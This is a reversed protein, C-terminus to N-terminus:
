GGLLELRNLEQSLEGPTVSSAGLRGVVIGAAANSVKMCSEINAGQLHMLAMVSIVTDGAGTVDYVERAFTPIRLLANSGRQLAVMGWEGCTIVSYDSHVTDLIQKALIRLAENDNGLEKSARHTAGCLCQAEMMNPTLLTAGEYWPLPTKRSPDVYVAKGIRRVESILSITDPCWVGKGYDQLILADYEQLVELLLDRFRKACNADLRHSREYDIRVLHQKQAIVRVKRLTPRTKDPILYPVVGVSQLRSKLLEGDSDDGSIGLIAVQAGLSALNHAVNGALGMGEIRREVEVIPVPAEPSIRSCEGILYEDIGIEGAVLIRTDRFKEVLSKRDASSVM